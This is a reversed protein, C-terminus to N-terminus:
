VVPSEGEPPMNPFYLFDRLWAVFAAAHEKHDAADSASAVQFWTMARQFYGIPLVLEWTKTVADEGYINAWPEFYAQRAWELDPHNEPEFGLYNGLVRLPVILSIFPHTLSADGWDFFRLTEGDFFINGDHLDGHDISPPIKIACLKGVQEAFLAQKEHLWAVEEDPLGGVRFLEHLNPSALLREYEIPLLELRRDPLYAELLEEVHNALEIQLEAYNSLMTQWDPRAPKGGSYRRMHQGGDPLLMWGKATEVALPVIVKQPALRGLIAVVSAEYKQYDAGAKFYLDGQDTPLHIAISWDRVHFADLEGELRVGLKELQIAIWEGSENKFHDSEWLKM